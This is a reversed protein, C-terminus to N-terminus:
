HEDHLELRTREIVVGQELWEALGLLRAIEEPRAAGTPTVILDMELSDSALRVGAVYPRVNLRRPQPRSREVWCETAGLLDDLRRSLDTPPTLPLPVRYRALRVQANVKRDIKRVSVINLGAPSQQTLRQQVAHTPVDETLELEAVEDLGVVGLALSLAFVLRPHPHFGETSAFPLESRRLMREFCRMLDHHSVWRLDGAKQFRIRVKHRVM